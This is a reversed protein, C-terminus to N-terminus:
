LVCLWPEWLASEWEVARCVCACAYQTSPTHLLACIAGGSSSGAALKNRFQKTPLYCRCEKIAPDAQILEQLGDYPLPQLTTLTWQIVRTIHRLHLKLSSFNIWKLTWNVVNVLLSFIVLQWIRISKQVLHVSMERNVQNFPTNQTTFHFQLSFSNLNHEDSYSM